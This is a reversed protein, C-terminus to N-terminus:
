AFFLPLAALGVGSQAPKPKQGITERTAEARRRLEAALGHQRQV